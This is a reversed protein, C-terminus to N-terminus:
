CCGQKPNTLNVFGVFNVVRGYEVTGIKDKVTAIALVNTGERLYRIPMDGRNKPIIVTPVVVWADHEYKGITGFTDMTLNGFVYGRWVEYGNIYVVSGFKSQIHLFVATVENLKEVEFTMKFLQIQNPPEPYTYRNGTEWGTFDDDMWKQPLVGM